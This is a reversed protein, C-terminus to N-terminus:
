SSICLKHLGFDSITANRICKSQVFIHLALNICFGSAFSNELHLSYHSLFALLFALPSCYFHLCFHLYVAPSICDSIRTFQLLFAILFAASICVFHLASAISCTCYQYIIEMWCYARLRQNCHNPVLWEGNPGMKPRRSNCTVRHIQMQLWLVHWIM